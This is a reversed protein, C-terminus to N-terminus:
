VFWAEIAREVLSRAIADRGIEVRVQEDFGAGAGALRRTQDATDDGEDPRTDVDIRDRRDGEGLLGGGLQPMPNAPRQDVGVQGAGGVPEVVSRDAGEVGERPAQQVVERDRGAERGAEPYEVFELAVQGEFLAPLRQEIMEEVIGVRGAPDDVSPAPQDLQALEVVEVQVAAPTPDRRTEVLVPVQDFRPDVAALRGLPLEDVFRHEVPDERQALCGRWGVVALGFAEALQPLEGERRAVLASESGADRQQGLEFSRASSATATSL